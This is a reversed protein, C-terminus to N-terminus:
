KNEKYNEFILLKEEIENIDNCSDLIYYIMDFNKSRRRKYVFDKAILIRRRLKNSFLQEQLNAKYLSQYNSYLEDYKRKWNILSIM